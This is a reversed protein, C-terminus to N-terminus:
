KKWSLINDKNLGVNAKPNPATVNEVKGDPGYSWVMVTGSFTFNNPKTGVDPNVLGNFGVTGTQQSVKQMGYYVDQCKEDFNLDMSIVYPNGWPDRYIGNQDVGDSTPDNSIQANLFPIRTINKVHDKNPTATGNPYTEKDMLIAITERNDKILPESGWSSWTYADAGLSLDSKAALAANLANTSVPYRAYTTYYRQVADAIMAMQSKAKAIMAKEKVKALAPLLMAALIAIIAIVVLLEILTFASRSRLPTESSKM